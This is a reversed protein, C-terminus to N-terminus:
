RFLYHARPSKFTQVEGGWALIMNTFATMETQVICVGYGNSAAATCTYPHGIAVATVPDIMFGLGAGGALGAINQLGANGEQL